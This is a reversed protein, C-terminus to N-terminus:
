AHHDGTDLPLPLGTSWELCQKTWYANAKKGLKKTQNLVHKLASHLTWQPSPHQSDKINKDGPTEELPAHSELYLHHHTLSLKFPQNIIHVPTGVRVMTYLKQIDEPYMRLCGASSRKGVGYPDNTGHILYNPKSLRLAYAGLPNDPGPPVFEPLDIGQKAYAKRVDPTPHWRPNKQKGVITMNGLPTSWGEKGIGVPFTEVTRHGRFVYMRKEALNVVIGAHKAHPLIYATPLVLVTGTKLTQHTIRPNAAVLEDYGVDHERAILDLNENMRTQLIQLHGIVQPHGDQWYPLRKALACTSCGLLLIGLIWRHRQRQTM